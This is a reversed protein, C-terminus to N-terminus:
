VKEHRVDTKPKFDSLCFRNVDGLCYSSKVKWALPQIDTVRVKGFGTAEARCVVYKYM